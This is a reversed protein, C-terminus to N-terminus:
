TEDTDKLIFFLRVWKINCFLKSDLKGILDSYKALKVYKSRLKLLNFSNGLDM